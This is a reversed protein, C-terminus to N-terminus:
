PGTGARICLEEAKTALAEAEVATLVKDAFAANVTRGLPAVDADDLRGDAAAAVVCGFLGDLRRREDENMETPLGNAVRRQLTGVGFGLLRRTSLAGGFLAAVLLLAVAACGLAGWRLWSPADARRGTAARTLETV